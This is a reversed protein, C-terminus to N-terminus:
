PPHNLWQLTATKGMGADTTIVLRHLSCPEGNVQARDLAVHERSVEVWDNDHGASEGDERRQRFSEAHLHRRPHKTDTLLRMRQSAIYPPKSNAM